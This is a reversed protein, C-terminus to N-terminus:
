LTGNGHVQWQASKNITVDVFEWVGLIIGLYM